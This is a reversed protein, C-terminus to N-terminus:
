WFIEGLYGSLLGGNRKHLEMMNIRSNPTYKGFGKNNM